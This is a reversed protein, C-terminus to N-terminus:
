DNAGMLSISTPRRSALDEDDSTNKFRRKYVLNGLQLTAQLSISENPSDIKELLSTFIREQLVYRALQVRAQFGSDAEIASRDDDSVGIKAFAIDLDHCAEFAQYVLEAQEVLSM